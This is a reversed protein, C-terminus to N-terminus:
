GAQTALLPIVSFCSHGTQARPRMPIRIRAETRQIGATAIQLYYRRKNTTLKM